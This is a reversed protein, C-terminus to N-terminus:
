IIEEGRSKKHLLADVAAPRADVASFLM